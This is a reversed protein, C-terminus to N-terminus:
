KSVKHEALTGGKTRVLSRIDTKDEHPKREVAHTVINSVVQILQDSIAAKQGSENGKCSLCPTGGM